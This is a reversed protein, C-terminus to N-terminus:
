MISSHGCSIQIASGVTNPFLFKHNTQKEDAVLNAIGGFVLIFLGFCILLCSHEPFSCCATCTQSQQSFSTHLSPGLKRKPVSEQELVLFVLRFPAAPLCLGSKQACPNVTPGQDLALGCMCGPTCVPHPEILDLSIM